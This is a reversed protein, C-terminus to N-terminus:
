VTTITNFAVLYMEIALLLIEQWWYLESSLLTPLVHIFNWNDVLDIIAWWCCAIGQFLFFYIKCYVVISVVGSFEWKLFITTCNTQSTRKVQSLSWAERRFFNHLYNVSMIAIRQFSNEFLNQLCVLCVIQSILSWGKSQPFQFYAEQSRTNNYLICLISCSM